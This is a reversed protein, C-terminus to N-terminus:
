VIEASLEFPCADSDYIAFERLRYERTISATVSVRKTDANNGFRM